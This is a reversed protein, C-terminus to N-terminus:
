PATGAFRQGEGDRHGWGWRTWGRRDAGAFMDIRPGQAYHEVRRFYEEPKRSHERRPSVIVQRIDARARQPSGIRGLICLEANQRTTYGMGLALDQDLLPTRRYQDMDINNWLKIWVFALSAPEVGWARFLDLHVGEVLFPSTIWLFVHSDPAAIQRLPLTKLHEISATPYHRQANRDGHPPRGRTAFHWPPDLSIM